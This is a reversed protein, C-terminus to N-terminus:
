VYRRLIQNALQVTINTRLNNMSGPEILKESQKDLHYINTIQTSLISNINTKMHGHMLMADMKSNCPIVWVWCNQFPSDSCDPADLPRWIRTVVRWFNGDAIFDIFRKWRLLKDVKNKKHLIKSLLVLCTPTAVIIILEMFLYVLYFMRCYNEFM